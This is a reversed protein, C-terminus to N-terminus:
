DWLNHQLTFEGQMRSGVDFINPKLGTLLGGLKGRTPMWDWLYVKNPDVKRLMQKTFDKVITEQFCVFDYHQTSFMDRIYPALGQKRIGRCNWFLGKM